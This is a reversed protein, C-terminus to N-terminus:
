DNGVPLKKRVYFCTLVGCALACLASLLIGASMSTRAVLAGVILPSCMYAAVIALFILNTPLITNCNKEECGSALLVPITVGGLLGAAAIFVTMVAPSASVIGICMVAAAALNGWLVIKIPSIPVKHMILRSITTGAWFLSLSLAGLIPGNLFVSVYRYIWVAVISQHLGYFLACLILLVGTGSKFFVKIDASTINQNSTKPLTIERTATRLLILYLMLIVAMIAVMVRIAMDWSLGANSLSLYFLPAILGGLGFIGHLRSMYKHTAEGDFLDAILSSAMSDATGFSFGMLGFLFCLLVFPPAFSIGLLIAAVCLITTTAIASKSIKGALVFVLCLAFLQGFGQASGIAGQSAAELAYHEIFNNLMVGQTANALAVVFVVLFMCYTYLQKAKM